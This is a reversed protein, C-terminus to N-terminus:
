LRGKVVPRIEDLYDKINEIAEDIEEETRCVKTLMEYVTNGVIGLRYIRAMEAVTDDDANLWDRLKVVTNVSAYGLRRDLFTDIEDRTIGMEILEDLKAGQRQFRLAVADRILQTEIM